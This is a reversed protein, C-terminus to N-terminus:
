PQSTLLESAAAYIVLAHPLGNKILVKLTWVMLTICM